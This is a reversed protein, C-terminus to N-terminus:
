SEKKPATHTHSKPKWAGVDDNCNYFGKGAEVAAVIDDFRENVEDVDSTNVLATNGATISAGDGFNQLELPTRGDAICVLTCDGTGSKQSRIYM